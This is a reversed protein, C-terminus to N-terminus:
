FIDEIKKFSALFVDPNPKKFEVENSSTSAIIIDEFKFYRIFEDIFERCAGSSIAIKYDNKHLLELIEFAHPM